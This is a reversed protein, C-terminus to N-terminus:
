VKKEAPVDESPDELLARLEEASLLPGDEMAASQTEAAHSQVQALPDVPQPPAEVAHEGAGGQAVAGVAFRHLGDESLLGDAGLRSAEALTAARGDTQTLWMEVHSFRGKIASIISLEERYISGLGIVITRYALPRGCLEAMAAYPDDKEVVQYGLRSLAAAPMTRCSKAGVVIARGIPRSVPMSLGSM